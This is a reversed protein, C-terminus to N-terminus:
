REDAGEQMCCGSIDLEQLSSEGSGLLEVLVSICQSQYSGNGDKARGCLAIDALRLERLQCSGRSRATRVEASGCSGVSGVSGGGGGDPAGNSRNSGGGGRSADYASDADGVGEAGGDDGGGGGGAGSGAGGGAGGGGSGVRMLTCLAEICGSSFDDQGGDAAPQVGCIPNGSLDLQALHPAGAALAGVLEIGKAVSIGNQSCHSGPALAGPDPHFHTPIRHLHALIRHFHASIRHLHTPIRHFHAPIRHLHTPIGDQRQPISRM